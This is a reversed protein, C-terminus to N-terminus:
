MRFREVEEKTVSNEYFINGHTMKNLGGGLKLGWWTGPAVIMASFFTSTFVMWPHTAYLCGGLFGLASTALVHDFFAPRTNAEDHHRIYWHIFTYTSLAAAGMMAPRFSVNKLMRLGRGSWDRAGSAAVLKDMEIPSSPGGLFAMYGFLGGVFAGKFAAKGMIILLSHDERTIDKMNKLLCYPESHRYNVFGRFSGYPVPKFDRNRRMPPDHQHNEKFGHSARFMPSAYDQDGGYGAIYNHNISM